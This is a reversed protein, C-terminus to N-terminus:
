SEICNDIYGATPNMKSVIKGPNGIVISHDPVNFNVFAGPAILVDSGITIGGVIISNTGMWVKEGIIPSGKRNGNMIAGVTVGHSINCNKGILSRPSIVVNGFHGIFFGAGIQTIVPIQFGFKYSYRRHLLRYLVGKVTYKRYKAAKRFFFLFRFGPIRLGKILAKISYPEQIYRYLDSKIIKDM